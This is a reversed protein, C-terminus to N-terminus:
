GVRCTFSTSDLAFSMVNREQAVLEVSRNQSSDLWHRRSRIRSMSDRTLWYVKGDVARVRVLVLVGSGLALTQPQANPTSQDVLLVDHRAAEAFGAARLVVLQGRVDM